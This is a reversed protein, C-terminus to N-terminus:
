KPCPSPALSFNDYTSMLEEVRYQELVVVGGLSPSRQRACDECHVVYTKRSSSESTVFLLNFVEVDCENCYYAPEDKVRSQYFIKKGAAILQDRLIQIHKMSQLLCHRIMKYTNPDTIKITRAVNWSVHIMPVISKVKKVENWEFRELALQYQYSNLPGVNWAINNCWGVAQVWHVTGANIWVLDGPRQIFRYVPINAQYLDELVPWWSGTLYDVGHKECFDSIAEWYHEHVAFWECDGPGININVSCFNNNEQHGPTRSGPVKMYLQVTNMGLITHGVHSLMNDSSSVRMFVPLKLLEQLQPKWRKPDSLDINTGFKIIKGIAKQDASFSFSICMIEWLSCCMVPSGSSSSYVNLSLLNLLADESKSTGSVSPSISLAESKLEVPESKKEGEDEDESDKEEQLSEQFSSAQYQAYKAITTHSRSSECPWTQASGAHNWNEDARQQVQTRVEVAHEGNAEVLSKTSFLGLNLRLSGALGRIVTVPNKPDTCFQLLVPSFADRKSELYISPTPPNLKERPILSEVNLVPKVSLAPLLYSEHFKGKVTAGKCAGIIEAATNKISIDNLPIRKQEIESAIFTQRGNSKVKVLHIKLEKLPIASLGQLRLLEAKSLPPKSSGSASPSTNTNTTAKTTAQTLCASGNDKNENEEAPKVREEEGREREKEREKEAEKTRQKINEVTVAQKNRLQKSRGGSTSSLPLSKPSCCQAENETKGKQKKHTRGTGERVHSGQHNSGLKQKQSREREGKKERVRESAKETAKITKSEKKGSTEEPIPVSVPNSSQTLLVECSHALRAQLTAPSMIKAEKEEELSTCTPERHSEVPKILNDSVEKHARSDEKKEEKMKKDDEPESILDSPSQSPAVGTPTLNTESLGTHSRGTPTLGTPSLVPQSLGAPSLDTQSLGTSSLDAIPLVTQSLGSPNLDAPTLDTPFPDTPSGAMPSVAVPSASTPSQQDPPRIEPGLSLSSSYKVGGLANPPPRGFPGGRYTYRHSGSGSISDTQHLHPRQTVQSSTTSSDQQEAEHEEDEEEEVFKSPEDLGYLKALDSHRYDPWSEGPEKWPEEPDQLPSTHTPSPQLVPRRMMIDEEEESLDSVPSGQWSLVPPSASPDLRLHDDTCTGHAPLLDPAHQPRTEPQQPVNKEFGTSADSIPIEQESSAPLNSTFVKLDSQEEQPRKFSSTNPSMPESSPLSDDSDSTMNNATDKSHSQNAPPTSSPPVSGSTHSSDSHCSSEEEGGSEVYERAPSSSTHLVAPSPTSQFIASHPSKSPSRSSPTQHSIERKEKEGKKIGDREARRQRKKADKAKKENQGLGMEVKRHMGKRERHGRGEEREKKKKKAELKREMRERGDEGKKEKRRERERHRKKAQGHKQLNTDLRSISSEQSDHNSSSSHIYNSPSRHKSLKSKKGESRHSSSGPEPSPSATSAETAPSRQKGHDKECPAGYPQPHKATGHRRGEEKPEQSQQRGDLGTGSRRTESSQKAPRDQSKWAMTPSGHSPHLVTTGNGSADPHRHTPAPPQHQPSYPVRTFNAPSLPVTRGWDGKTGRLGPHDRPNNHGPKQFAQSPGCLAPSTPHTRHSHDRSSSQNSEQFRSPSHRKNSQSWPASNRYPPSWTRPPHSLLPRNMPHKMRPTFAQHSSNSKSRKSPCDDRSPSPHRHPASDSHPPAPRKLSPSQFPRSPSVPSWREGQAQPPRQQQHPGGYRQPQSAHNNSNSVTGGCGSSYSNTTARATDQHNPGWPRPAPRVRGPGRERPQGHARDRSSEPPRNNYAKHHNRGSTHSLGPHQPPYVGGSARSPAAWNRGSSPAWAARSSGGSPFSDWSYRGSYQEAAHYM